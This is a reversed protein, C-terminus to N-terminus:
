RASSVRRKQSYYKSACSRSCFTANGGKVLHTQRREREFAGSCQPCTLSVMTRGPSRDAARRRNEDGTVIELNDLSDNTRDGDVHDVEEDRGLIRGEKISMLYKSYLLTRRKNTKPSWLCVQWRGMKKHFLKYAVYDQFPHQTPLRM